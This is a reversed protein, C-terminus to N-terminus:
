YSGLPCGSLLLFGAGVLVMGPLLAYDFATQRIKETRLWVLYASIFPVCIGHSAYERHVVSSIVEWLVERYISLGLVGLVTVLILMRVKGNVGPREGVRMANVTKNM